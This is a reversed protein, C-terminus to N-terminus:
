TGSLARAATEDIVRALQRTLERREYRAVVGANPPPPSEGARWREVQARILDRMAAVDSPRALLANGAETLLDRADGDPVAALIPRESALYEYTKGPVLGARMGIPLDHMPLFLLDASRILAVTEAHSLYGTLQVDVPSELAIKRDLATTVGALVVEISDHFSRDAVMLEELAELLFVHSRTLMDLPQTGGLLRRVPRTKRLRYGQDTHLYGTHVIRFRRDTRDPLPGDFDRADFGNPISVVRDAVEPFARQVRIAAEPTNMVITSAAGLYRRMRQLDLRQHLASPYPWMEDLAWPDQLDAILPKRLRRAIEVAGETTEYPVLSAFIVDTERGVREALPVANATWWRTLTPKLQLRWELTARRASPQPRPETIRHVITGNERSVDALMTPDDPEWRDTSAGPGTVVVPTHGFEPLYRVFKANRQVGGGGLPPFHFALYLVRSM